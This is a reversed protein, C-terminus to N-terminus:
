PLEGYDGTLSHLFRNSWKTIRADFETELLCGLYHAMLSAYLMGLDQDSLQRKQYSTRIERLVQDFGQKCYAKLYSEGSDFTTRGQGALHQKMIMKQM